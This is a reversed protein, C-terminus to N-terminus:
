SWLSVAMRLKGRELDALAENIQDHRYSRTILNKLEIRGLKAMQLVEEVDNARRSSVGTITIEKTVFGGSSITFPGSGLGGIITATGGPRTAQIVQDSTTPNGIAEFAKDVGGGTLAKVAAVPDEAKADIVHTAGFQKAAALKEDAIDVGIIPYAGFCKLFQIANLGIGGCGIVLASDGPQLRARHKVAHYATTVRCGVISAEEMSMGDPVHFAMYSPVAVYEAFGGVNWRTVITGDIMKLSPPAPRRECLNERASLCYRCRGCKYRMGIIARNGAKFDKCRPGVQEITGAVEHGLITPPTFRNRGEAVKLDTHCVGCAAVKILVDDDGVEPMHIDEIKLPQRAAYLLAAKMFRGKAMDAARFARGFFTTNRNQLL